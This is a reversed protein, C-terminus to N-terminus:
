RAPRSSSSQLFQSRANHFFSLCHIAFQDFDGSIEEGDAFGRAAHEIETLFNVNITVPVHNVVFAGPQVTLLVGPSAQHHGSFAYDARGVILFVSRFFRHVSSSDLIDSRRNFSGFPLEGIAEFDPFLVRQITIRLRFCKSRSDSEHLIFPQEQDLM